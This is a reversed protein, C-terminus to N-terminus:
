DALQNVIDLTTNADREVAHLFELAEDLDECRELAKKSHRLIGLMSESFKQVSETPLDITKIERGTDEILTTTYVTVNEINMCAAKKIKNKRGILPLAKKLDRQYDLTDAVLQGYTDIISNLANQLLIKSVGDQAHAQSLMTFCLFVLIKKLM